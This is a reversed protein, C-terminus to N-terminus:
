VSSIMRKNQPKPVLNLEILSEIIIQKIREDTVVSQQNQWPQNHPQPQNYIQGTQTSRNGVNPNSM